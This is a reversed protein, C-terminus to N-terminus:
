GGLARCVYGGVGGEVGGRTLVYSVFGESFVGSGRPVYFGYANDLNGDLLVGERADNEKM